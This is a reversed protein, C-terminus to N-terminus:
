PGWYQENYNCSFTLGPSAPVASLDHVLQVSTAVAPTLAWWEGEISSYRAVQTTGNGTKGDLFDITITESIGINVGKLTLSKGASLNTIILQIGQQSVGTQNAITFTPFVPATGSNTSFVWTIPSSVLAVSETTEDLREWTYQRSRFRAEFRAANLATNRIWTINPPRALRCPLVRTDNDPSQQFLRLNQRGNALEKLLTDIKDQTDDHGTGAVVGRITFERGFYQDRVFLGVDSGMRPSFQARYDLLDRPEEITIGNTGNTLDFTGFRPAWTRGSV